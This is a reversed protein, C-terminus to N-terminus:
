LVKINDNLIDNVQIFIGRPTDYCYEKTDIRKNCGSYKSHFCCGICINQTKYKFESNDIPRQIVKYRM